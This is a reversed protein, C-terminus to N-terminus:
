KKRPKVANFREDPLIMSTVRLGFKDGVKVAEGCAVRQGGVELDLMEECSKEFQIILGPGIEVVRGVSQRKRALTVVVPLPIKLLSKSFLPLDRISSARTKSPMSTAARGGAAQRPASPLPPKLIPRAAGSGYVASPSTAPWVLFARGHRGDAASVQLTLQRAGTAVGGRKLAGALHRVRGAKAGEVVISAPVLLMGLEQALTALRSVGTADPEACWAPVLGSQHPVALIAAGSGVTLVVALGADVLEPPLTQSDFAASDGIAVTIEADLARSLASGIEAANEKCASLVEDVSLQSLEPASM